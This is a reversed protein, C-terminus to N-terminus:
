VAEVDFRGWDPLTSNDLIKLVVRACISIAQPVIESAPTKEGCIKYKETATGTHVMSSRVGYAGKVIDFTRLREKVSGGLFKAGRMSVKHTLETNGSGLLSELAIAVEIARDGVDHRIQAQHLRKLAVRVKGKTAEDLRLFGCIAAHAIGPDVEPCESLTMPIIETMKMSSGGRVAARKMDPESYEFWMTATTLARPGVAVLVLAVDHLYEHAESFPNSAVPVQNEDGIAVVAPAIMRSLMLVSSPQEFLLPNHQPLSAAWLGANKLSFKRADEPLREFPVLQIDETLQIVDSVPAGWVAMCYHGASKETALVRRLWEVTEVASKTKLAVKAVPGGLFRPYFGFFGNGANLQVVVNGPFGPETKVAEELARSFESQKSPSVYVFDELLAEAGYFFLAAIPAQEPSQTVEDIFKQIVDHLSM